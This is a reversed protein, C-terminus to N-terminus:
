CELGGEGAVARTIDSDSIDGVGSAVVKVRAHENGIDELAAVFAEVTGSVDGKVVVNLYKTPTQTTDQANEANDDHSIGHTTENANERLERHALRKDNIVELEAMTKLRHMADVRNSVARKAEDEGTAELVEDGAKPLDKWGAVVVPLGVQASKVTERKDSEMQRVKCWTAGGVVCAGAQLVGRTVLVTALNGRGKDVRSELVVGHARGTMESRLDQMESLAAITDTLEAMGRGSRASVLVAPTEGGFEELTVGNALLDYKIATTDVGAKDCKTIAVIVGLNSRTCLEIVEKTQPMVGDDAAVVVVAIDTVSAGRARMNTFAAHGPTDLFTISNPSDTTPTTTSGSSGSSNTNTSLSSVAVSFAGIHQTIGGAESPAVAASRLRDLLTTKGHDVHGMITVVPPRLPLSDPESHPPSPYLDFAREENQVPELGCEMALLSADESVLVRDYQMNDLGSHIMIRQLKDLRMNFLRSLNAVSIFAPIFVQRKAPAPAKTPPKSTNKKEKSKTPAHAAQKPKTKKWASPDVDGSLLSSRGSKKKNAPIPQTKTQPSTTNPNSTPNSTAKRTDKGNAKSTVEPVKFDVPRAWKNHLISATNINRHSNVLVRKRLVWM